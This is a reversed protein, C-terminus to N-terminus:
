PRVKDRLWATTDNIQSMYAGDGGHDPHHKQALARYGASVLARPWRGCSAV